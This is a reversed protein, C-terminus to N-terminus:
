DVTVWWGVVESDDHTTIVELRYNDALQNNPVFMRYVCKEALKLDKFYKDVLDQNSEGLM